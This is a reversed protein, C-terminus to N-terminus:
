KGGGNGHGCVLRRVRLIGHLVLCAETVSRQPARGELWAKMDGGSCWPMQIYRDGGSATGDDWRRSPQTREHTSRCTHTYVCLLVEHVCANIADAFVAQVPMICPHQVRSPIMVQVGPCSPSALVPPYWAVLACPRGAM